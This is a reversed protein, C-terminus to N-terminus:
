AQGGKELNDLLASLRNRVRYGPNLRKGHMVEWLYSHPYGLATAAARYTLGVRKMRAILSASTPAKPHELKLM